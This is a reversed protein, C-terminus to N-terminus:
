LLPFATRAGVAAMQLTNNASAQMMIASTHNHERVQVKSMMAEDRLADLLLLQHASFTMGDQRAPARQGIYQYHTM